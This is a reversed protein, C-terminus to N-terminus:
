DIAVCHVTTGKCTASQVQPAGNFWALFRGRQTAPNLIVDVSGAGDKFAGINLGCLLTGDPRRVDVNTLKNNVMQITTDAM